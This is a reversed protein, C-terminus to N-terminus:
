RSASYAVKRTESPCAHASYAVYLSRCQHEGADPWPEKKPGRQIPWKRQLSDRFVCASSTGLIQPVGDGVLARRVLTAEPAWFRGGSCHNRDTQGTNCGCSAATLTNNNAKLEFFPDNSGRCIRGPAIAEARRVTKRERGRCFVRLGSIGRNSPGIKKNKLLKKRPPALKCSPGM